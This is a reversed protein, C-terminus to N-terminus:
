SNESCWQDFVSQPMPKGLHFGQALDCGEEKLLELTAQDEVGEATVELGLNHHWISLPM